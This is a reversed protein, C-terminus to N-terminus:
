QLQKKLFVERGQVPFLFHLSEPSPQAHLISPADYSVTGLAWYPLFLFPLQWARPCSQLHLDGLFKPLNELKWSAPGTGQMVWVTPPAIQQLNRGQDRHRGTANGIISRSCPAASDQVLSGPKRWPLKVRHVWFCSERLM